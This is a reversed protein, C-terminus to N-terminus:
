RDVTFALRPSPIDPHRLTELVFAIHRWPTRRDARIELVANPPWPPRADARIIRGGGEAQVQRLRVRLAVVADDLTGPDGRALDFRHNRFSLVGQADLTVVVARPSAPTVERGQSAYPLEVPFSEGYVLTLNATFFVVLLLAVDVLPTLAGRAPPCVGAGRAGAPGGRGAAVPRM